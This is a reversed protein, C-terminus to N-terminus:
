PLEVRKQTWVRSHEVGDQLVSYDGMLRYHEAGCQASLDGNVLDDGPLMPISNQDPGGSGATGHPREPSTGASGVSRQADVGKDLTM